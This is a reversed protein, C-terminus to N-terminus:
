MKMKKEMCQTVRSQERECYGERIAAVGDEACEWHATPETKLCSYLQAFEASCPTLTAMGLCNVACGNAQACKLAFSHGCIVDCTKRLDEATQQAALPVSGQPAAVSRAVVPASLATATLGESREAPETAASSRACAAFLCGLAVPWATQALRALERDCGVRQCYGDSQRTTM